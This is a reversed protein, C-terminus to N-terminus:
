KLPDIRYPHQGQVSLDWDAILEDKHLEIWASLLKMKNSPISGDLVNGEPIGVVVEYGQYVAHIHPSKHQKGLPSNNSYNL